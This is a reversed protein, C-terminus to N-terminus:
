DSINIKSKYLVLGPRPCPDLSLLGLFPRNIHLLLLDVRAPCNRGRLTSSQMISVALMLWPWPVGFQSWCLFVLFFIYLNQECMEVLHPSLGKCLAQHDRGKNNLGRHERAQSTMVHTLLVLRLHSLDGIGKVKGYCGFVWAIDLDQLPSIWYLTLISTGRWTNWVFLCFCVCLM